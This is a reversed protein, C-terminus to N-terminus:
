DASLVCTIAGLNDLGTERLAKLAYVAVTLGGKMDAIGPGLARDGQVRFPFAKGPTFATDLDGLVLVRGHGTGRWRAVRHDGLRAPDYGPFMFEELWRQAPPLRPGRVRETTYGIAELERCVRDGVANIGAPQTAHSEIAVLERVFDLMSEQQSGLYRRIAPAANTSM